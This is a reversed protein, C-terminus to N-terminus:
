SQRGTKNAASIQSLGDNVLFPQRVNQFHSRGLIQVVLVHRQVNGVRVVHRENQRRVAVVQFFFGYAGNLFQLALAVPHGARGFRGLPNVPLVCRGCQSGVGIVVRQADGIEAFVFLVPQRFSEVNEFLIRVIDM